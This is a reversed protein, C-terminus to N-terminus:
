VCMLGTAIKARIKGPSQALSADPPNDAEM